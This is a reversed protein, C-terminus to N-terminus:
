IQKKFVGLVYTWIHMTGIALTAGISLALLSSAELQRFFLPRAATTGRLPLWDAARGPLRRATAPGRRTLGGVSFYYTCLCWYGQGIDHRFGIGPDKTAEKLPEASGACETPCRANKCKMFNDSKNKLSLFQTNQDFILILPFWIQTEGLCFACKACNM